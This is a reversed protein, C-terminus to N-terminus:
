TGTKRALAATEILVDAPELPVGTQRREAEPLIDLSPWLGTELTRAYAGMGAAETKRRIAFSDYELRHWRCLIGNEAPELTLYWGDPTSDNAPLGIVGTNIWYGSQLAEGFPIGSHGGVIIDADNDDLMAQKHEAATSPFVFENISAPSGHVLRFRIGKLTFEIVGPLKGMWQRQDVSTNEVCLQYWRQSLAACHSDPDFGCGCDPALEALSEECNGQVVHIGWDRVLDITERPEGCYAVLDGNCIIQAPSFGSHEARTRLARTAALNGYPGGFVLIPGKVAGLDKTTQTM